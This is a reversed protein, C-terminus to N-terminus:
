RIKAVRLKACNANKNIKIEKKGAIVPKKTLIELQEKHDRFFNKIIRDENSHFSIVVIRGGSKLVNIAQLLVKQINEFENNVEIRLAQWVLALIKKSDINLAKRLQATTTIKQKKRFDVINKALVRSIRIDSNKYFLDALKKESYKNVIETATPNSNEDTSLQMLLPEDFQYSFGRGTEKYHWSALGLDILIGDIKKLNNDEIIKKLNKFNDNVFIIQNKYQELKKKAEQLSEIDQDIGLVKGKPGIKKLIEKSHGGLGLTCDVFNENKKPDLYELVEEILVPVHTKMLVGVEKM